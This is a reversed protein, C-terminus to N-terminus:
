AQINNTGSDMVLLQDTLIVAGNLTVDGIVAYAQTQGINPVSVVPGEILSEDYKGVILQGIGSLGPGCDTCIVSM